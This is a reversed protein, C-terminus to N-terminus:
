SDGSRTDASADKGVAQWKEKGGEHWASLLHRKCRKGQEPSRNLRKGEVVACVVISVSKMAM